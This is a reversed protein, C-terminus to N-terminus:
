KDRKFPDPTLTRSPPTRHELRWKFEGRCTVLEFGATSGTVALDRYGAQIEKAGLSELAGAIIGIIQNIVVPALYLPVGTITGIGECDSVHLLKLEVFDFYTQFLRPAHAAALRPGGLRSFVRFMSPILARMAAQGVHRMHAELPRGRLRTFTVACPLVPCADYWIAYHFKQRIFDRVRPDVLEDMLQGVGGPLTKADELLRAYFLGKVHFPSEGPTVPVTEDLRLSEHM